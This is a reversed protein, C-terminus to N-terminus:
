QFPCNEKNCSGKLFAHCPKWVTGGGSSAQVPLAVGGQRQWRGEQRRQGQKGKGKGDKNKGKGKGKGKKGQGKGGSDAPAGPMLPITSSSLARSQRERNSNM